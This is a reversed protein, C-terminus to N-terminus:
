KRSFSAFFIVGNGRRPTRMFECPLFPARLSRFSDALVLLHVVFARVGILLNSYFASASAKIASQFMVPLTMFM